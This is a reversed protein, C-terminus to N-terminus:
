VAALQAQHRPSSAEAAPRLCVQIEFEDEGTTFSMVLWDSSGLSRSIFNRGYIVTPVSLTLAGLIHEADTKFNGIIMNTIEGVCDLVEDNMVSEEGMLLAASLRCALGASCIIVGTGVWPGGLGVFSMVGDQVAPCSQVIRVPGAEVELSLMTSFVGRAAVLVSDIISQQEM